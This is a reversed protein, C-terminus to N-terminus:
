PFLISYQSLPITNRNFQLHSFLTYKFSLHAIQEPISPFLPIRLSFYTQELWSPYAYLHLLFQTTHCKPLSGLHLMTQSLSLKNYAQWLSEDQYLQTWQDKLLLFIEFLQDRMGPAWQHSYVFFTHHALNLQDWPHEYWPCYLWKQFSKQTLFTRAMIPLAEFRM